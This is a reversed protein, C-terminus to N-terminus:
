SVRLRIYEFGPSSFHDRALPFFRFSLKSQACNIAYSAICRARYGFFIYPSPILGSTRNSFIHSITEGISDIKNFSLLNSIAYNANWSFLITKKKPIYYFFFFFFHFELPFKEIKRSSIFNKFKWRLTTIEVELESRPKIIKLGELQELKLILWIKKIIM